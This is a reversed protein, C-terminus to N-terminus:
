MMMDILLMVVAVIVGSIISHIFHSRSRDSSRYSREKEARMNELTIHDEKIRENMELMKTNTVDRAVILERNSAHLNALNSELTAIRHRILEFQTNLDSIKDYLRHVEENNINIISDQKQLLQNLQEKVENIESAVNEMEIKLKALEVESSDM